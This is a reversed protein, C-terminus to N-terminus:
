LFIMDYNQKTSSTIYSIVKKRYKKNVIKFKNKMHQYTIVCTFTLIPIKEIYM